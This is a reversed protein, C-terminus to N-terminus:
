KRKWVKGTKLRVTMFKHVDTFEFLKILIDFCVNNQETFGISWRLTGSTGYFIM